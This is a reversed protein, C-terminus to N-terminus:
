ASALDTLTGNVSAVLVNRTADYTIFVVDSTGTNASSQALSITGNKWATEVNTFISTVASGRSYETRTDAFASTVDTWTFKSTGLDRSIEM